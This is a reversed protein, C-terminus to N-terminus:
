HKGNKRKFLFRIGKALKEAESVKFLVSLLLYVFVGVISAFATQTLLGMTTLTNVYPEIWFLTQYLLFGSVVSFLMYKGGAVFIKNFNIKPFRRDLFVLLFFLNIFAAVVSALALGVVKLDIVKTFLVDGIINILVAFLAIKVPTKTDHTAYFARVLFPILGTAVLGLCLYGFTRATWVTDAVDFLGAGLILRVIQARLLLGFVMSPILLYIILNFTNTFNFAFKEEEKNSFTYSLLPFVSVALSIGILGVPLSVLNTSLNVIAISGEALTSGILNDVLLNVQVLALSFTVPLMLTLIKIFYKDKIDFILAPRYGLKIFTPIQVMMHAIAGFVVGWALGSVGWTPVLYLAGSIIGINYLIPALSYVFFRGFSNLVGGAISSVAFFIPSLMMIRTLAVTIELQEGTFGPAITRVFWPAGFSLIALIIVLFSLAINTFNNVVEWARKKDKFILDTFVPIFAASLAGLIILNFVFDPIRFAAYYSDLLQGAGFESALVRDRFLGLLRSVLSAGAIIMANRSVKSINNLIGQM